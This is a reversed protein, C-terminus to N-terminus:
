KKNTSDKQNLTKSIFHEDELIEDLTRNQTRNPNAFYADLENVLKQICQHISMVWQNNGITQSHLLLGENDLEVLFFTDHADLAYRLEVSFNRLQQKIIMSQNENLVALDVLKGIDHGSRRIKRYTDEANDEKAQILIHSKLACECAMLLDVFTKIRGTKHTENEWLINFRSLFDRADIWYYSAMPHHTHTPRLDM